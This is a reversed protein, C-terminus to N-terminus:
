APWDMRRRNLITECPGLEWYSFGDGPEFYTHWRGAYQRRSGNARIWSLCRMQMLADTARQITVYEHPAQPRGRFTPRARQFAQAGIYQVVEERTPLPRREAGLLLRFVPSGPHQYEAMHEACLWAAASDWMTIVEFEAPSDYCFSCHPLWLVYKVSHAM